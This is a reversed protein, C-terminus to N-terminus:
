ASLELPSFPPSSLPTAPLPRMDRRPDPLIVLRGDPLRTPAIAVGYLESLLAGSMVEEPPGNAIIHGDKLVAVRDSSALVHDPHHTTKLIGYGDAALGRLLDLLAIQNGYDLGTAPEDLILLRSGQALARAIMAMQREGGSIETYPREALHSIGLRAMAQEAIAQDPRSPAAFMGTAPLRGMLVVQRVSYPFPTAHVQPVYALHRALERRPYDGLPRGALCVEGGQPPLLGLFIRLLTSKGAGNAGLLSVVQGPALELNADHLVTKGHYAHRIHRANLTLPSM